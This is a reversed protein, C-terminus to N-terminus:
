VHARGIQKGPAEVGCAVRISAARLNQQKDLGLDQLHACDVGLATRPPQAPASQAMAAGPRTVPILAVAAITIGLLTSSIIRIKM